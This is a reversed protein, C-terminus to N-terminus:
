WLYLPVKYRNNYLRDVPIRTLALGSLVKSRLFSSFRSVKSFSSVPRLCLRCGGFFYKSCLLTIWYFQGPSSFKRLYKSRRAGQSSTCYSLIQFPSQAGPKREVWIPSKELM